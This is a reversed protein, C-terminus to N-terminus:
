EPFTNYPIVTFKFLKSTDGYLQIFIDKPTLTKAFKKFDKIEDQKLFIDYGVTALHYDYLCRYKLSKKVAEIGKEKLMDKYFAAHSGPRSNEICEALSEATPWSHGLNYYILSEDDFPTLWHNIEGQMAEENERVLEQYLDSSEDVVCLPKNGRSVLILDNM